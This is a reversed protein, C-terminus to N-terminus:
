KASVGFIEIQKIDEGPMQVFIKGDKESIKLFYELLRFADKVAETITEAEMMKVIRDIRDKTQESLVVSLRASGKKTQGDGTRNVDM